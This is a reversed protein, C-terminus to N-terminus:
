WGPTRQQIFCPTGYRRHATAGPAAVPQVTVAGAKLDPSSALQSVARQPCRPPAPRQGSLADQGGNRSVNVQTYVGDQPASLTITATVPTQSGDACDSWTSLSTGGPVTTGYGAVWSYLWHQQEPQQRGAGLSGPLEPQEPRQLVGPRGAQNTTVYSPATRPCRYTSRAARSPHRTSSPSRATTPRATTRAPRAPRRRPRRHLKRPSPRPRCAEGNRRPLTAAVPRPAATQHSATVASAAGAVTAVTLVAAPVITYWRRYWPTRPATTQTNM